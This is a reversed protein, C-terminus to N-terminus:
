EPKAPTQCGSLEAAAHPFSPTLILIALVPGAPQKGAPQGRQGGWVRGGQELCSKGLM